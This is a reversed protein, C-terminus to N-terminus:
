QHFLEMETKHGSHASLQAHAGPLTKYGPARNNIANKETLLHNDKDETNTMRASNGKTLNTIMRGVAATNSHIVDNISICLGGLSGALVCSGRPGGYPTM